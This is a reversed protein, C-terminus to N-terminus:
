RSQESRITVGDKRSCSSSLARRAACAQHAEDGAAHRRPRPRAASAASTSRSSRPRGRGRSGRARCRGRAPATRSSCGGDPVLVLWGHCRGRTAPCAVRPLGAPRPLSPRDAAAAGRWERIRAFGFSRPFRLAGPSSRPRDLRLHLAPAPSPLAGRLAPQAPRAIDDFATLTEVAIM